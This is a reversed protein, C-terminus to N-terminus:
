PTPEKKLSIPVYACADDRSGVTNVTRTVNFHTQEPHDTWRKCNRCWQDVAIPRCRTVDVPLTTM